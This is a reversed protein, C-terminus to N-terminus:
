EDSSESTGDDTQARVPAKGKGAGQWCAGEDEEDLSQIDM